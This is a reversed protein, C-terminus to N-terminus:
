VADGKREYRYPNRTCTNYYICKRTCDMDEFGCKKVECKPCVQRGEPVVEGCVICRDEM